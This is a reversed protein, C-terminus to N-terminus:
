PNRTGAPNTQPCYLSACRKLIGAKNQAIQELSNGLIQVHDYDIHTFVVAAPHEIINTADNAGGLGTEIVAWEVDNEAFYELMILTFWEFISISAPAIAPPLKQTIKEYLAM